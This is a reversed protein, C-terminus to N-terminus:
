VVEDILGLKLCEDATLYTTEAALEAWEEHSTKTVIELLKNWHEEERETQEISSRIDSPGGDVEELQSEHVMCWCERGMTRHDGYALIMTAASGVYGVAEIHIDLASSRIRQAYALAAYADGGHSSLIIQVNAFSTLDRSEATKYYGSEYNDLWESFKKFKKTTIDGTIYFKPTMREMRATHLNSAMDLATDATDRLRYSVFVLGLDNERWLYPFAILLKERVVRIKTLAGLAASM